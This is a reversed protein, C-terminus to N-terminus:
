NWQGIYRCGDPWKFTGYGEINGNKHEAWYFNGSKDTIKGIGHLENQYWEGREM